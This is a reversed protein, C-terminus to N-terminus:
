LTKLIDRPLCYKAQKITILARSITNNMYSIHQKWSLSEDILLGLFQTAQENCDKGIRM